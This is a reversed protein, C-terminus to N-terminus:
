PKAAVAAANGHQYGSMAAYGVMVGLAAAIFGYLLLTRLKM